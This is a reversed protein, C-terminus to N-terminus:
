IDSMLKDITQRASIQAQTTLHTYICTTKPSSHGLYEQILRLNVGAELLHTAYSHRLTQPHVWKKIGVEKVVEKLVIQVSSIPMHEKNNPCCIGGRGPAPFILAPNKHILWYKRLILLTKHPLPVYRDKGGKGARVHVVMRASDIDAVTLNLGETIRLGLSYLVSLITYYRPLRVHSLILRVEKVSLVDPLKKEKQPYVFRLTQWERKLTKEYFYRFSSIAQKFFSESYHKEDKMYLLYQRLENENILDPSKHYYTQLKYLHKVYAEITRPAKGRLRLEEYLKQYFSDM